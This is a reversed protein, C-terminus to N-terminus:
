YTVLVIKPSGSFQRATVTSRVSQGLERFPRRIFYLDGAANMRPQVLDFGKAEVLTTMEGQDLHQRHLAFPTRSVPTGEADRGIGASQFVIERPSGPVWSPARDVSDGETVEGLESGDSQLMTISVSGDPRGSACAILDESPHVALDLAHAQNGHQLRTEISSSADFACLGHIDEAQLIYVLSSPGRGAAVSTINLRMREPDAPPRGWLLGRSLFGAGQGEGKWSHRKQQSLARERVSEAFRSPLPRAAADKEKLYLQGNVRYVITPSM